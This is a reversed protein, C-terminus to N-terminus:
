DSGPSSSPLNMKEMGKAKVARRATQHVGALDIEVKIDTLSEDKNRHFTVLDQKSIVVTLPANSINPYVQIRDILRVAVPLYKPKHRDDSKKREIRWISLDVRWDEPQGPSSNYPEMNLISIVSIRGKSGHVIGLAKNEM